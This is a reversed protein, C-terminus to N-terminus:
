SYAHREGGHLLLLLSADHVCSASPPPATALRRRRPRQAEPNSILGLTWTDSAPMPLQGGFFLPARFMSWLTM